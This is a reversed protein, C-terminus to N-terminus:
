PVIKKTESYKTQALNRQFNSFRVEPYGGRSRRAAAQSGGARHKELLTAQEEEAADNDDGGGSELDDPFLAAGPELNEDPINDNHHSAHGNLLSGGFPSSGGMYDQVCILSQRKEVYLIYKKNM